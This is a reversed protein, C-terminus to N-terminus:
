ILNMTLVLIQVLVEISPEACGKANPALLADSKFANHLTLPEPLLYYFAKNHM